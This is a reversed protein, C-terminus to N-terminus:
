VACFLFMVLTQIRAYPPLHVEQVGFPFATSISEFLLEEMGDVLVPVRFRRLYTHHHSACQLFRSIEYDTVYQLPTYVDRLRKWTKFRFDIYEFVGQIVACARDDLEFEDFLALKMSVVRIPIAEDEENAYQLARVVAFLADNPEAAVQALALETFTARAARWVHM